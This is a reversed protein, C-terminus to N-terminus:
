SRDLVECFDPGESLEVVKCCCSPRSLEMVIWFDLLIWLEVAIWAERHDGIIERVSSWKSPEM